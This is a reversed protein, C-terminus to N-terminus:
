YFLVQANLGVLTDQFDQGALSSTRSSTAVSAGFNVKQYPEWNLSLTNQYLNDVRTSSPAATPSGLYEVQSYSSLLHVAAKPVFQWTPGLTVTDTQTFNTNETDYEAVTHQYGLMFSTKGTIVWNVTAGGSLGSYDRQSYTPHTRTSFVLYATASSADDINWDLRLDEDTQHFNNDLLGPSPVVENLYVGETSRLRFTIDTGSAFVYRLGSEVSNTAWDSGIVALDNVERATSLGAVIRWPGDIEYETDVGTTTDTRVNRQTSNQTDAFNNLTQQRTSTFNGHWEPTIFWRWAANYNTGTYNLYSFNQYSSDVLSASFEFQQLSQKTKFNVGVTAVDIQESGDARGVTAPFNTGTPLRFLNNDTQVAYSASLVVPADAVAAPDIQAWAASYALALSTIFIPTYRNM